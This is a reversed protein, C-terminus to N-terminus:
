RMLLPEDWTMENKYLYSIISLGMGSIGELLSPESEWSNNYLTKYGAFGNEHNAFDLSIDAWFKSARQFVLDGTKIFISNYIHMIGYSGHCFCADKVGAEQIDMRLTTKKLIDITERKLNNDRLIDSVYLLAIGLGLDGYCWRLSSNFSNGQDTIWNPFTSTFKPNNHRCLLLYKTSLKLLSKARQTFLNVSVLKALFYMISPIGHSLGLNRGNFRADGIINETEWFAYGDIKISSDDLFSLLKDLYGKYREKLVNSSVNNFRKFFYLGYGIAGHLYDYNKKSIDDKMQAFLYYDLEESLIDNELDIFKQEKLFELTWCAGAVGSCYTPYTYGKNIKDFVDSILRAGQDIHKENNTMRGYYFHFLAIGSTGSLLGIDFEEFNQNLLSTAIEDLKIKLKQNINM